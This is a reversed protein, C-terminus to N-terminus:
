WTHRSFWPSEFSMDFELNETDLFMPDGFFSANERDPVSSWSMFSMGSFATDPLNRHFYLNGTGSFRGNSGLYILPHAMSRTELINGEMHYAGSNVSLLPKSDEAGFFVNGRAEVRFAAGNLNDRIWLAEGKNRGIRNNILRFSGSEAMVQIGYEEHYGLVSDRVEADLPSASQLFVGSVGDSIRSRILLFAGKHQEVKLGPEIAAGSQHTLRKQGSYVLTIGSLTVDSCNRLALGAGGSQRLSTDSITIRSSDYLSLGRENQLFECGLIEVRDCGRVVPGADGSDVGSFDYEFQLDELRVKSVGCLSLLPRPNRQVMVLKAWSPEAGEPIAWQITHQEPDVWYDWVELQIRQTRQSLWAQDYFLFVAGDGPVGRALRHQYTRFNLKEWDSIIEGESFMVTGNRAPRVTLWGEDREEPAEGRFTELHLGAHYKGPQLELIVDVGAHKLNLAQAVKEELDGRVPQVTITETRGLMPLILLLGLASKRFISM